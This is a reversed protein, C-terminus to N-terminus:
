KCLTQKLRQDPFIENAGAIIQRQDRSVGRMWLGADFHGAKGDLFIMMCM